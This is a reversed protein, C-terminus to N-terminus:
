LLSITNSWDPLTASLCDSVHQHECLFSPQTPQQATYRAPKLAHRAVSNRSTKPRYAQTTDQWDCRQASRSSKFDPPSNVQGLRMPCCRNSHIYNEGLLEQILNPKAPVRQLSSNQCKQPPSHVGNGSSDSTRKTNLYSSTFFKRGKFKALCTGKRVPYPHIHGMSLGHDSWLPLLNRRPTKVAEYHQHSPHTLVTSLVVMWYGAPVLSKVWLM